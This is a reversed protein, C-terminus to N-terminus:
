QPKRSGFLDQKPGWLNKSQTQNKRAAPATVGPHTERELLGAPQETEHEKVSYPYM